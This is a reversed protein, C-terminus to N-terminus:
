GAQDEFPQADAPLVTVALGGDPWRPPGDGYTDTHFLRLHDLIEEGPVAENCLRCTGPFRGGTESM